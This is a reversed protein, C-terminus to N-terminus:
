RGTRHRMWDRARRAPLLLIPPVFSKLTLPADSLDTKILDVDSGGFRSSVVEVAPIARLRDSLDAAFPETSYYLMTETACVPFISGSAVEPWVVAAVDLTEMSRYSHHAVLGGSVLVEKVLAIDSAIVEPAHGGDLHVFRFSKPNLKDHLEVSSHAHVIPPDSHFRRYNDEFTKQSYTDYWALTHPLFNPDDASPEPFPDCVHLTEGEELLYGLFIASHGLYTGIELIDGTVGRETQAETVIRFVHTDPDFLDGQIENLRGLNAELSEHDAMARVGGAREVQGLDSLM